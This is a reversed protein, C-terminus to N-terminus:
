YAAGVLEMNSQILNDPRTWSEYRVLIRTGTRHVLMWLGHMHGQQIFLHFVTPIDNTHPATLDDYQMGILEERQYGVLKCFSDSVEVYRRDTNVVTTYDSAVQSSNARVNNQPSQDVSRQRRPAGNETECTVQLELEPKKKAMPYAEATPFLKRWIPKADM